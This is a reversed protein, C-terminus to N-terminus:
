ALVAVETGAGVLVFGLTAAVTLVVGRATRNEPLTLTLWGLGAFAIIMGTHLIVTREAGPPTSLWARAFVWGAVAATALLVGPAARRLLPPPQRDAFALYVPATVAALALVAAIPPLAFGTALLLEMSVAVAASVAVFAATGKGPADLFGRMLAYGAVAPLATLVALKLVLPGISIPVELTHGHGQALAPTATWVLLFGVIVVLRGLAAAASRRSTM